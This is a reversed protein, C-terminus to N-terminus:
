DDLIAQGDVRSDSGAGEGEGECELFRSGCSSAIDHGREVGLGSAHPAAAARPFEQLNRRAPTCFGACNYM